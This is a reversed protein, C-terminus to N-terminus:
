RILQLSFKVRYSRSFFVALYVEYIPVKVPISAFDNETNGRKNSLPDRELELLSLCMSLSLFIMKLDGRMIQLSDKAKSVKNRSAM